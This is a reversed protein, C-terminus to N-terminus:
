WLAPASPPNQSLPPMSIYYVTAIHARYHGYRSRVVLHIKRPLKPRM